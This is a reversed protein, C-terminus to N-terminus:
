NQNYLEGINKKLVNQLKGGATSSPVIESSAVKNTLKSVGRGHM